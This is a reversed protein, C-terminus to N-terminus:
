QRANFIIFLSNALLSRSAIYFRAIESYIDSRKRGIDDKYIFIALDDRAAVEHSGPTGDLHDLLSQTFYALLDRWIELNEAHARGSRPPIQNALQHPGIDDAVLDCSLGGTSDM